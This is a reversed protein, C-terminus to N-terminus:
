AIIEETYMKVAQFILENVGWQRQKTNFWNIMQNKDAASYKNANRLRNFDPLTIDQVYWFQMKFDQSAWIVNQTNSTMNSNLLHFQMNRIQKMIHLLPNKSDVIRPRQGAPDDYHISEEMSVYEGLAARMFSERRKVDSGDDSTEVNSIRASFAMAGHARDYTAPYQMLKAELEGPLQVLVSGETLPPLLSFDLANM